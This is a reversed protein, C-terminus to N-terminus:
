SAKAARRVRPEELLSPSVDPVIEFTGLDLDRFWLRAKNLSLVEVAIDFGDLAHALPYVYGRFCFSGNSRVRCTTTYPPYDYPSPRARRKETPAYVEAPTKGGLADHPRVHNFEQRWRDLVRQQSKADLAPHRQVEASVDAHMREHGGNDQPCAPRSRAIRIGMSLWWVSLRSLGGRSRVSVFPTGNDCQITSPIGHKTFLRQLVSRVSETTAPGLEIALIYRSFADRITLPNCTEGNGARWWGKFDITWVDNSLKATVTPAHDAVDIVPRKRRRQRIRDARKLIRAITRESPTLEGFRRRLVVELKRPGWSPHADRTSLVALVLEEATALPATKPRRSEEELGNFGQERFRKLWKHGTQRSIGFDRCASSISKGGKVQEVFEIKLSMARREKWPM